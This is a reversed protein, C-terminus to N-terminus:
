EWFFASPMFWLNYAFVRGNLQSVNLDCYWYTNSLDLFLREPGVLESALQSITIVDVLVQGIQVKHKQRVFEDSGVWISDRPTRRLIIYAGIIYSGLLSLVEYNERLLWNVCM